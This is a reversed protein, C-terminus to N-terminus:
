LFISDLIVMNETKLKHLDNFNLHGCREHWVKLKAVSGDAFMVSHNQATKVVYMRDRRAATLVISGDRRSIVANEKKFTVEYGRSTIAPVSILNNRLGPTYLVDSFVIKHTNNDSKVNLNVRGTGYAMIISKGATRISCPSRDIIKEFLGKDKCMHVTAGSDIYWEEKGTQCALASTAILIEEDEGKSKESTDACKAKIQPLKTRCVPARHGVKGCRFCKGQFKNQVNSNKTPYEKKKTNSTRSYLATGDRNDNSGRRAEEEILKAKLTSVEPIDDRSEMAVRFNEYDEPLCSLLMISLLEQPVIIGADALMDARQQFDNVFQAMSQDNKKKTQYLERYLVAKRVPGHSKHIKELEEWAGKATTQKRIHGIETKSVGLVILALAKEDRTTWAAAEAAVEPKVITGTVYGWLDNYVLVSKMQIRWVEYNNDYLKEIHQTGAVHM